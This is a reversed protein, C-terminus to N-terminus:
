AASILAAIPILRIIPCGDVLTLLSTLWCGLSM